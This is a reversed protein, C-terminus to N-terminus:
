RAAGSPQVRSRALQGCIRELLLRVYDLSKPARGRGPLVGMWYPMTSREIVVLQTAAAGSACGRLRSTDLERKASRLCRLVRVESEVLEMSRIQPWACLRNLAHAVDRRVRPNSCTGIEALVTRASRDGCRGLLWVAVRILNENSTDLCALLGAIPRHEIIERFQHRFRILLSPQDPQWEDAVAHLFQLAATDKPWLVRLKRGVTVYGTLKLMQWWWAPRYQLVPQDRRAEALIRDFWGLIVVGAIAACIGLVLFPDVMPVVSSQDLM